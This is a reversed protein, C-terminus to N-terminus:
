GARVPPSSPPPVARRDVRHRIERCPRRVGVSPGHEGHAPPAAGDEGQTGAGADGHAACAVAVAVPVALRGRELRHSKPDGRTVLDTMSFPSVTPCGTTCKSIM